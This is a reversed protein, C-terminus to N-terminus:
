SIWPTNKCPHLVQPHASAKCFASLYYIAYILEVYIPASYEPHQSHLFMQIGVHIVMACVLLINLIVVIKKFIM